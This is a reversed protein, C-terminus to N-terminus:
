QARVLTIETIEPPCNVRLPLNTVGIGRNTYLWMGNVQYLGLDYKWSLYPTMLARNAPIRIQGGHSHGSLQVSVRGDLSFDDALDPEHALLVIAAGDPAGELAATLDPEGSWGDDLGALYLTANGVSLALGQNILLPLGAQALGTKVVDVDTWLDHNGLISFVGYKANLNALVPTLDFVAEAKRWVYDGLLVILDPKLGNTMAVTRRILDLQTFPYLHFDALLAITFEELALALNNIPIQVRDVVPKDAENKRNLHATCAATAGGVAAVSLALLRRRSIRM